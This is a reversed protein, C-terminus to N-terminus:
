NAFRKAFALQLSSDSTGNPYFEALLGRRSASPVEDKFVAGRSPPCFSPFPAFSMDQREENEM